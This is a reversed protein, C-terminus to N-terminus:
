PFLALTFLNPWFLDIKPTKLWFRAFGRLVALALNKLSKLRKLSKLKKLRKLM